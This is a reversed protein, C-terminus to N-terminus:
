FAPITNIILWSFRHLGHLRHYFFCNNGNKKKQWTSTKTLPMNNITLNNILIQVGRCNMIYSQNIISTEKIKTSFKTLM